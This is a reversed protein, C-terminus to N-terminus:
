QLNSTIWKKTGGPPWCCFRIRRIGPPLQRSNTRVADATGFVAAHIRGIMLQVFAHIFSHFRWKQSLRNTGGRVTKLPSCVFSGYGFQSMVLSQQETVKSLEKMKLELEEMLFNNQCSLCWLHVSAPFISIFITIWRDLISHSEIM